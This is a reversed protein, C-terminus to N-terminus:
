GLVSCKEKAKSYPWFRLLNANGQAAALLWCCKARLYEEEAVQGGPWRAVRACSFLRFSFGGPSALEGHTKGRSNEAKRRKGLRSCKTNAHKTWRSPTHKKKLEKQRKSLKQNSHCRNTHRHCAINSCEYVEVAVLKENQQPHGTAITRNRHCHDVLHVCEFCDRV